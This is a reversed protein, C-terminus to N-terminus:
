VVWAEPFSIESSRTMRTTLSRVARSSQAQMLAVVLSSDIGGSLFAGVSVDAISQSAISRRLLNELEGAAAEEDGPFPDRRGRVVVERLSWYVQPAPVFGAAHNRSFRVSAGPVLKFINHYISHPARVYGHRMYSAVVSHDITGRFDPHARLAKLESGYLLAGGQWGYYLPKEGMRDRALTLTKDQRDWVAFAFMGAALGLTFELGWRDFGALLSETDSHGRWDPASDAAELRARIELHNYIEGNLVIVYRGSASMMPQHGAPSLDLISLRRHGLAIGADADIWTGIDDPGRHLLTQCQAALIRQADPARFGGVRLFGAIGCM